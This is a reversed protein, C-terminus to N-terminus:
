QPGFSKQTWETTSTSLARAERLVRSAMEQSLGSDTVVDVDCGLLEQLEYQLGGLDLLTRGSELRVLVDVDSDERAEGRAVSGFVRVDTAGYRTAIALVQDRSARLRDVPSSRTPMPVDATTPM